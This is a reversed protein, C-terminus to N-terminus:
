NSLATIWADTSIKILKLMKYQVSLNYNASSGNITVGSSCSLTTTGTSTNIFTFETGIPFAESSNAPITVTRVGTGDFPFFAKHGYSTLTLTISTSVRNSIYGWHGKWSPAGSGNSYLIYDDTGAITPAYFTPSQNASGNMTINNITGITDPSVIDFGDVAYKRVIGLSSGINALSTLKDSQAQAGVDGATYALAAKLASQTIDNSLPIGVIERTTAVKGALANTVTTAFNPDDGLAAALENLTDLTGPSSAVLAAIANEIETTIEAQTRGGLDSMSPKNGPHYITQGNIKIIGLPDIEVKTDTQDGFLLKDYLKNQGYKTVTAGTRSISPRDLQWEIQSLLTQYTGVHPTKGYIIFEIISRGHNGGDSIKQVYSTSNIVGIFDVSTLKKWGIGHPQYSYNYVRYDSAKEPTGGYYFSLYFNGYAYRVDNIFPDYLNGKPTIRVKIYYDSSATSQTTEYNGDFFPSSGLTASVPSDLYQVIEAGPYVHLASPTFTLSIVGTSPNYTYHTTEYKLTTGDYVVISSPKPTNTITYSTGSGSVTYESVWDPNLKPYTEGGYNKLHRTTVVVWKKDAAHLANDISNIYLKKGGFPNTNMMVDNYSVYRGDNHADHTSDHPAPNYTSPKGDIHSWHAKLYLRKDPATETDGFTGVKRQLNCLIAM